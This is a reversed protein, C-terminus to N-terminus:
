GPPDVGLDVILDIPIPPLMGQIQIWSRAAVFSFVINVLSRFLFQVERPTLSLDSKFMM